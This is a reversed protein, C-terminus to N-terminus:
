PITWGDFFEEDFTWFSALTYRMGGEVKSVGHLHNPDGPHVALKGVEPRISVNHEPYYTEGGSYDDNLYIIAGFHRHHFFDDADPSNTMDDAHPRQDMGPFWRVAQFLDPYVDKDLSYMEKISEAVKDRLNYLFKGLEKDHKEYITFSNLSRNNWFDDGGSEWPDIKTIIDLIYKAEDKSIINDKTKANFMTEGIM